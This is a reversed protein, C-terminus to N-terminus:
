WGVRVIEPCHMQLLSPARRAGLGCGILTTGGEAARLSPLSERGLLGWAGVACLPQRSLRPRPRVKPCASLPTVPAHRSAAILLILLNFLPGYPRM